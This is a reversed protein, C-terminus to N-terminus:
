PAEVCGLGQKRATTKMRKERLIRRVPAASMFTTRLLEDPAFSNAIKLVCTEARERNM